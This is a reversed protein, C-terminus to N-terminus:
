PTPFGENKMASSVRLPVQGDTFIASILPCVPRFSYRVMMRSIDNPGGYGAVWAAGDLHEFTFASDDLMITPNFKRMIRKMSDERSLYEGPNDPDPMQQGTIGYRTAESVGHELSQYVYFLRSFDSIAFILFFLLLLVCAMEVISQGNESQRRRDAFLSGRLEYYAM